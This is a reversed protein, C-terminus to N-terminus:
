KFTEARVGDSGVFIVNSNEDSTVSYFAMPQKSKIRAFTAGHDVSMRITGDQLVIFIRGDPTVTGGTIGANSEIDIRDWSVGNDTSRYLAGRMGYAIMNSGDTVLGFLTGKYPTHIAEFKSAGANYHWITGQEGTLYINGGQGHISYLHLEDNNEIHDMWPQWTQGGDVTHYLRNFAGIVFGEKADKFYVDLLALTGGEDQHIKEKDAYDKMAPEDKAKDQYIKLAAAGAQRGDLQKSWTQGGDATHLVVGGHGVAWGNNEDIFKVATLDSSVQMPAQNWHQGRDTSYVVQGHSGVAVIRNGVSAVGMMPSIPARASQLAPVDLPDKYAGAMTSAASLVLAAGVTLRIASSLYRNM